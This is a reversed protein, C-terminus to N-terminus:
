NNMLCCKKYKRGSGCPCPDNSGTKKVPRKVASSFRNVSIGPISIISSSEEQRRRGQFLYIKVSEGTQMNKAPCERIESIKLYSSFRKIIDERPNQYLRLHAIDDFDPVSAILVAGAPINRIVKFDDVHEL